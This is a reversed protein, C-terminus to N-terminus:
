RGASGLLRHIEGLGEETYAPAVPSTAVANGFLFVLRAIRAAKDSDIKDVEDSPRHYDEHLWATFFIAPIDHRVFNVHDSRFFAREAPDPDPAVTLGLAPRSAAIGRALAGMDSYDGGIAIVTDPSNRGIMDTNIDAVIAKLPVTPHEAFYASGLLGKEEGSVSLFLLSRPPAVPLSAFAQAVELLLATGSADDDAGNYISDGEADPAGVGLHDFHASFVVYSDRLAPDSGPLIAIVNPPRGEVRAFRSRLTLTLGPLPVVRRPQGEPPPLDALSYGAASLVEEARDRRLGFIPLPLSPIGAAAIQGTADAVGAATFHSDLVLLIGVGGAASVQQIAARLGAFLQPAAEVIVIRGATAPPMDGFGDPLSGGYIAEGTAAPVRSPLVFFDSGFELTPAEGTTQVDLGTSDPELRTRVYPYRQVFGASDGGAQLGFSRYESALYAAARELEPSPTNRGRMNDAALFAIRDHMETATITALAADLASDSVAGSDSAAPRVGQAYIAGAFLPLAAASGLLSRRWCRRNLASESDPHIRRL